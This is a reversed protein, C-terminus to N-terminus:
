LVQSDAVCVCRKSVAGTQVAASPAAYYKKLGVNYIYLFTYYARANDGGLVLLRISKGDIEIECRVGFQMSSIIWVTLALNYLLAFIIVIIIAFM